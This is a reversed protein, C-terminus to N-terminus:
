LAGNGLTDMVSQYCGRLFNLAIIDTVTFCVEAASVSMKSAASLSRSPQKFSLPLSEQLVESPICFATRFRLLWVPECLLAVTVPAMAYAAALCFPEPDARSCECFDQEWLRVQEWFPPVPSSLIDCLFGVRAQELLAPPVSPSLGM